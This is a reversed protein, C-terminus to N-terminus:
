CRRPSGHLRHVGKMKQLLRDERKRLRQLRREFKEVAASAPGEECTAVNVADQSLNLEQLVACELDQRHFVKEGTQQTLLARWCNM